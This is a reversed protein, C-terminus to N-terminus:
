RSNCSDDTIPLELGLLERQGTWAGSMEEIKQLGIFSSSIPVFHAAALGFHL